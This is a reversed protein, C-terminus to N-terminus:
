IPPWNLDSFLGLLPAFLRTWYGTLLLVGMAVLLGGGAQEIRRAHRRFFHFMKGERSFALAILLFPIGMGLSYIALLAAGSSVTRTAAAAALIAGLIPGVCPTWGVAFAMGLPLAGAPGPRIRRLDMRKESWLFPIRLFGLMALGMIIVFVGAIKLLTPLAGALFQGLLSATVGLATFVVGFGAVFLAASGLVRSRSAEGASVGTIYSVYGPM